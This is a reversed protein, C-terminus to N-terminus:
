EIICWIDNVSMNLANSIRIAVELSPSTNDEYRYYQQESVNILSSFEKKNMMYTQMRISKLKNQIM